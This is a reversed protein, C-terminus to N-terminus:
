QPTAILYVTEGDTFGPDPMCRGLATARRGSKTMKWITAGGRDTPPPNPIDNAQSLRAIFADATDNDLDVPRTLSLGLPIVKIILNAM